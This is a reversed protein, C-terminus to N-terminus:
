IKNDDNNDQDSLGIYALIPWALLQIPRVAPRQNGYNVTHTHFAKTVLFLLCGVVRESISKLGGSLWNTVQSVIWGNM